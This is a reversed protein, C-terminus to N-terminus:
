FLVNNINMWQEYVSNLRVLMADFYPIETYIYCSAIQESM